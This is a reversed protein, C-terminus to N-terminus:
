VGGALAEVHRRVPAGRAAYAATIAYTYIQSLLLFGTPWFGLSIKYHHRPWYLYVSFQLVFDALFIIVIECVDTRVLLKRPARCWCQSEHGTGEVAARWPRRTVRHAQRFSGQQRM